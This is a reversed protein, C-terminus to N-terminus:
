FNGFKKRFKSGGNGSFFTLSGGREVFDVIKEQGSQLALSYTFGRIVLM